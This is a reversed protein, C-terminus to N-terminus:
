SLVRRAAGQRHPRETRLHRRVPAPAADRRPKQWTRDPPGPAIGCKSQPRTASSPPRKDSTADPRTVADRAGDCPAARTGTRKEARRPPKRKTKPTSTQTPLAHLYAAVLSSLDDIM